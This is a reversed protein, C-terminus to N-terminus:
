EEEGDYEIDILRPVISLNNLIEDYLYSERGNELSEAYDKLEEVTMDYEDIEYEFNMFHGTMENILEVEFILKSM